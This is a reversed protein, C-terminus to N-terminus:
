LLLLLLLTFVNCNIHGELRKAKFFVLNKGNQFMKIITNGTPTMNIALNCINSKRGLKITTHALIM